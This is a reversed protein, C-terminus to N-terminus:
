SRDSFSLSLSLSPSFFVRMFTTLAGIPATTRRLVVAGTPAIVVNSSARTHLSLHTKMIRIHQIMIGRTQGLTDIDTAGPNKVPINVLCFGRSFTVPSM